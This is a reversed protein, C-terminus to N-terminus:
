SSVLAAHIGQYLQSRAEGELIEIELNPIDQVTPHGKSGERALTATVWESCSFITGQVEPVKFDSCPYSSEFAALV